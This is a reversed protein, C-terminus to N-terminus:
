KVTVQIKSFIEKATTLTTIDTYLKGNKGSEHGHGIPNLTITEGSKSLDVIAAFVLSPQCSTRYDPDDIKTNNWYNNWDWPQNVEVLLRFKTPLSKDSKLKIFASKLPTAGTYADPVPDNPSPLKFESGEPLRKHLWYPLAAPRKQEGPIRDWKEPGASGHGFIGTAISQTVFLTQIFQEDLTEAWIAFTPHNHEPGAILNIELPNGKGASNVLINTTTDETSKSMTSCSTLALLIGVTSVFFVYSVIKM